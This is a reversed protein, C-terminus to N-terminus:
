GIVERETSRLEREVFKKAAARTRLIKVMPGHTPGLREMQAAIGEDSAADQALYDSFRAKEEDSLWIPKM